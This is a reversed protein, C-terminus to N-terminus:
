REQTTEGSQVPDHMHEFLDGNAKKKGIGCGVFPLPFLVLVCNENLHLLLGGEPISEVRHTAVYDWGFQPAKAPASSPHPFGFDRPKQTLKDSATDRAARSLESAWDIPPHIANNENEQPVPLPNAADRRRPTADELVRRTFNSELSVPPRAIFVIELGQSETRRSVVRSTALLLWVVTLHLGLVAAITCSVQTRRRKEMTAAFSETGAHECAVSPPM